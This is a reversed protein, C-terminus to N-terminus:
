ILLPDLLLDQIGRKSSFELQFVLKDIHIRVCENCLNDDGYEFNDLIDFLFQQCMAVKNEM